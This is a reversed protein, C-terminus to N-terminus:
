KRCLDELFKKPIELAYALNDQCGFSLIVSDGMAALGSCFEIEADIISFPESCKVINWNRDWVVFCNKYDFDHVCAIRYNGMSIVQTGGKLDKTFPNDTDRNSYVTETTKNVPDTKVVETPNTWKVFHFPLDAIPMWNKECYSDDPLTSPIRYRYTEVVSNNSDIELRSLEMRCQGDITTDRRVGVAYLSGLWKVLRIDELGSFWWQPKVDLKSTDIIHESVINLDRDLECFYNKTEFGSEIEPFIYLSKQQQDIRNRDSSYVTYQSHRITAFLRKNDADFVVSPNFTNTGKYYLNNVILPVLKGGADLVRAALNM